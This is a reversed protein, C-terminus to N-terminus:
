SFISEELCRPKLGETNPKLSLFREGAPVRNTLELTKKQGCANAKHTIKKFKSSSV